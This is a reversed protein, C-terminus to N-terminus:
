SYSGCSHSSYVRCASSGFLKGGASWIVLCTKMEKATSRAFLRPYQVILVVGYVSSLWCSCLGLIEASAGYRTLM